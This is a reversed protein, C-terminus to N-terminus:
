ESAEDEETLPRTKGASPVMGVDRALLDALERSSHVGLLEYGQARYANVTGRAVHLSECIEPASRGLAIETLVHAQLEGAGRGRLYLVCRAEDLARTERECPSLLYPALAAVAAAHVILALGSVSVSRYDPLMLFAGRGDGVLLGFLALSGLVLCLERSLERRRLAMGSLRGYVAVGVWPLVLLVVPLMMRLGRGFSPSHSVSAAGVVLQLGLGLCLAGVMLPRAGDSTVGLSPAPAAAGFERPVLEELSVVGLKECVRARYTSVTSPSIALAEAVQAQTSGSILAEAVERERETLLSAGSRADLPSSSACSDARGYGALAWLPLALGWLAWAAYRLPRELFHAAPGVGSVVPGLEWLGDVALYGVLAAVGAWVLTRRCPALRERLAYGMAAAVLSLPMASSWPLNAWFSPALREWGDPLGRQASMWSLVGPVVLMVGLWMVWVLVRGWTRRARGM